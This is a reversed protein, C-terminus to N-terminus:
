FQCIQFFLFDDCELNFELICFQCFERNFNYENVIIMLDYWLEYVYDVVLLYLVKDRYVEFIIINYVIKIKFEFFEEYFEM